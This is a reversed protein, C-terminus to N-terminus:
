RVYQADFRLLARREGPLGGDGAGDLPASAESERAGIRGGRGRLKADSACELVRDDGGPVRLGGRL